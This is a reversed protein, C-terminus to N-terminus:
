HVPQVKIPAKPAPDQIPIPTAFYFNARLATGTSGSVKLIGIAADTITNQLIANENEQVFVAAQDSHTISNLAAANNNGILVVGVLVESNFITNLRVTSSNGGVFNGVQNSGTTKNTVVIGNSEFVLIGTANTPCDSTSVCKAWINDAITNGTISANAGFAMQIGNQGAGTTPGIGTVMNATITAATGAQNATIGDKQYDWVSNGLITVTSTM